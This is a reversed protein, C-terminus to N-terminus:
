VRAWCKYETPDEKYAARMKGEIREQLAPLGRTQAFQRVWAYTDRILQERTQPVGKRWNTGEQFRKISERGNRKRTEPPCFPQDGGDALNLLKDGRARAEAILRREAERWDTCDSELVRMEPEGHKKIWAYLPTNRRLADRMHGRLRAKCCNAKGIYRLGGAKDFLGYISAVQSIQQAKDTM